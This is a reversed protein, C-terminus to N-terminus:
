KDARRGNSLLLELVDWAKPDTKGAGMGDRGTVAPIRGWSGARPLPIRRRAGPGVEGDADVGGRRAGMAAEGYARARVAGDVM